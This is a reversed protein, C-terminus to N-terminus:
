EVIKFVPKISKTREGVILCGVSANLLSPVLINRIISSLISRIM